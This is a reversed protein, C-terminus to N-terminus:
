ASSPMRSRTRDRPSPSTYLLCTCFLQKCSLLIFLHAIHCFSFKVIKGRMYRPHFLFYFHENNRCIRLVIFVSYHFDPGSCSTILCADEGAVKESHVILVKFCFPPFNLYIIYRLSGCTPILLDNQTYGSLTYISYHFIFRTNMTNLSYRLSFGLSANM